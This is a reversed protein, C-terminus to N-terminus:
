YPLSLSRELVDFAFETIELLHDIVWQNFPLSRYEFGWPKAEWMGPIRYPGECATIISTYEKDMERVIFEVNPMRLLHQRM